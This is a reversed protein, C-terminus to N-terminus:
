GPETVMVELETIGKYRAARVRHNGAIVQNMKNVTIPYKDDKPWETVVLYAVRKRHYDSMLRVVADVDKGNNSGALLWARLLDQHEDMGRMEFDGKEIAQRIEQDTPEVSVGLEVYDCLILDSLKKTVKPM